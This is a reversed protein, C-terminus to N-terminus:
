LQIVSSDTGEYAARAAEELDKGAQLEAANGTGAKEWETFDFSVQNLVSLVDEVRFGRYQKVTLSFITPFANLLAGFGVTRFVISPSARFLGPEHERLGKFYNDIIKTQEQVTFDSIVSRSPNNQLLPSLKRVFNTLSVSQGARAPAVTVRNFLASEEDRRLAQAIDTAKDKAIESPSKSPPLHRLLDYYLSTPVGKATRNITVFQFIQEEISLDLFAVVALDMDQEAKAAGVLRHQGDIVWGSTPTRPIVLEGARDDFRAGRLSVVVAPALVKKSDVFSSIARVRSSSLTRQYGEDKDSDRENIELIDFLVKAPASFLYLLSGHQSVPISRYRISSQVM